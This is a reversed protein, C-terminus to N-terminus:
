RGAGLAVRGNGPRRCREVVRHHVEGERSCMGNRRTLAGIAVDVIVVVQRARGADTAMLGIVVVRGCGHGMGPEGGGALLAMVRHLPAVTLEVVGRRSKHQGSRVRNRRPRTGVTVDVVVVVNRARGAHRAVQLIELVRRIRVVYGSPERLGAFGAVVGRGPLWCLKIVRLRSERQRSGMHGWRTLAGIAVDVVVVVDGARSTDTAMLSIVVVRGRGHGMGSKGGGALLAMVRHLPAIALEIVGRGSKYQRSRVHNRRPQTAIAVDVIVVVDGSRRADAAVLVVVVVRGRRHRVGSERRGTFLAVVSHLPGVALEVM